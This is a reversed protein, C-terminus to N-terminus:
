AVDRREDPKVGNSPAYTLLQLSNFADELTIELKLHHEYRVKDDHQYIRCWDNLFKKLTISTFGDTQQEWFDRNLAIQRLMIKNREFSCVPNMLGRLFDYFRFLDPLSLPNDGASCFMEILGSNHITITIKRDDWWLNKSYRKLFTGNHNNVKDYNNNKLYLLINHQASIGDIGFINHKELRYELKLGHVKINPDELKKIIPPSPKIQYYGRKLKRIKKQKHLRTMTTRIQSLLKNDIKNNDFFLIQYMIKATYKFKPNQEM